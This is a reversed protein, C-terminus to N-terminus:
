QKTPYTHHIENQVNGTPYGLPFAWYPKSMLIQRELSFTLSFWLIDKGRIMYTERKGEKM